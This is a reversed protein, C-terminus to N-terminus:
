PLAPFEVQATEGSGVPVDQDSAIVRNASRRTATVRYRGPRLNPITFTSDKALAFTRKVIGDPATM